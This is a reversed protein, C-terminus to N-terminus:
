ANLEKFLALADDFDTIEVWKGDFRTGLWGLHVSPADIKARLANVQDLLEQGCLALEEASLDRYGTVQPTSYKALISQAQVSLVKSKTRQTLEYLVINTGARAINKLTKTASVPFKSATGAILDLIEPRFDLESLNRDQKKAAFFAAQLFDQNM